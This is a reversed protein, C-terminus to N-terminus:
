RLAQGGARAGRGRTCVIGLDRLAQLVINRFRARTMANRVDGTEDLDMQQRCVEQVHARIRVYDELPLSATEGTATGSGGDMLDDARVLGDRAALAGILAVDMM